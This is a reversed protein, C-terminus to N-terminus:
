PMSIKTQRIEKAPLVFDSGYPNALNPMAVVAASMTAATSPATVANAMLTLPKGPVDAGLGVHTIGYGVLLSITFISKTEM